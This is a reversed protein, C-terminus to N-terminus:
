APPSATATTCPCRTSSRAARLTVHRAEAAM